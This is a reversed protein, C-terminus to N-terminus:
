HISHRSEDDQQSVLLEDGLVRTRAIEISSHLRSAAWQHSQPCPECLMKGTCSRIRDKGQDGFTAVLWLSPRRPWSDIAYMWEAKSLVLFGDFGERGSSIEHAVVPLDMLLCVYITWSRTTIALTLIAEQMTVMDNLVKLFVV